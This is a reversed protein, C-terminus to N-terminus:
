KFMTYSTVEGGGCGMGILNGVWGLMDQGEVLGGCFKMEGM